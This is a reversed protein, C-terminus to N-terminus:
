FGEFEPLAAFDDESMEMASVVYGEERGLETNELEEALVGLEDLKLIMYNGKGGDGLLEIKAVKM